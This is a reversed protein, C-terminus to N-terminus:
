LSPGVPVIQRRLHGRLEGGPYKRTVLDAYVRTTILYQFQGDTLVASGDLATNGKAHFDVLVGANAGPNEPGHLAASVLASSLGNFTVHWTIKLTARELWLDIHGKAASEVVAPEEDPSLDAAFLIDDEAAAATDIHGMALGLGIAILRGGIILIRRGSHTPM